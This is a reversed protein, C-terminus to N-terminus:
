IIAISTKPPPQIRVGLRTSSSAPRPHYREFSRQHTGIGGMTDKERDRRTESINGNGHGLAGNEGGAELRGWIEGHEGPLLHIAKPSRLAFINPLNHTSNTELIELRHDQDVLTVSLCQLRVSPCVSLCLRCTIVIRRKASYRMARYFNDIKAAESRNTM